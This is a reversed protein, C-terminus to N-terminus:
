RGQSSEGRVAKVVGDGVQCELDGACAVEDGLAGAATVGAFGFTCAPPVLGALV